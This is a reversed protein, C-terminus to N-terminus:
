PIFNYPFHLHFEEDAVRAILLKVVLLKVVRNIFKLLPIM